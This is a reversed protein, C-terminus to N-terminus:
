MPAPIPATAPMTPPRKSRSNRFRMPIPFESVATFVATRAGIRHQVTNVISVGDMQYNNQSPDAGNVAIDQTGKGIETANNVSTNAGAAMTLLQTYNRNSLPLGVVQQSTVTTGLTSSQTQLTEAAAEM